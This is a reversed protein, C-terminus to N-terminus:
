VHLRQWQQGRDGNLKGDEQTKWSGNALAAVHRLGQEVREEPGAVQVAAEVGDDVRARAAVELPGEAVHELAGAEAGVAVELRKPGAGDVEGEAGRTAVRVLLFSGHGEVDGLDRRQDLRLVRQIALGRPGHFPGVHFVLQRRGVLAQGCWGDRLGDTTDVGHHPRPRVGVAGVDTDRLSMALQLERHFDCM